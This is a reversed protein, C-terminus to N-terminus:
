YIFSWLTSASPLQLWSRREEEGDREFGSLTVACFASVALLAFVSGAARRAGAATTKKTNDRGRM